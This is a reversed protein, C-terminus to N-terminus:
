ATMDATADEQKLRGRCEVMTSHLKETKYGNTNLGKKQGEAGCAHLLHSGTAQLPGMRPM